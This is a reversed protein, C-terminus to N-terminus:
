WKTYEEITYSIFETHRSLSQWYADGKWPEMVEGTIVYKAANIGAKFGVEFHNASNVMYNMVQIADLKDIFISPYKTEIYDAIASVASNYGIGYDDDFHTTLRFTRIKDALEKIM